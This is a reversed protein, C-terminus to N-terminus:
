GNIVHAVFVFFITAFYKDVSYAFPVKYRYLIHKWEFVHLDLRLSYDRVKSHNLVREMMNFVLDGIILNIISNWPSRQLTRM